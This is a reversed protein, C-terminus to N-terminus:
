KVAPGGLAPLAGLAPPAGLAWRPLVFQASGLLQPVFPLVVWSGLRGRVPPLFFRAWARFGFLCRPRLSCDRRPFLFLLFFLGLCMRYHVFPLVLRASGLLRSGFPLVFRASCLWWLVFRPFFRLSRRAFYQRRPCYSQWVPVPRRPFGKALVRQAGLRRLPAVWALFLAARWAPFPCGLVLFYAGGIFAFRVLPRPRMHRAVGLDFEVRYIKVDVGARPACM